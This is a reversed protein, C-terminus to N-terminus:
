DIPPPFPTVGIEMLWVGAGALEISRILGIVILRLRNPAAPRTSSFAPDLLRDQDGKRGEEISEAMLAEQYRQLLANYLDKMTKYDGFREQYEQELRPTGDVRRGSM